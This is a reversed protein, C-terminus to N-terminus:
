AATVAILGLETVVHSQRLFYIYCNHIIINLMSDFKDKLHKSTKRDTKTLFSTSSDSM